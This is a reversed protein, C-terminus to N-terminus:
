MVAYCIGPQNLFCIKTKDKKSEIYSTYLSHIKIISGNTM